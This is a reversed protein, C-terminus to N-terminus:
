LWITLLWSLIKFAALSMKGFLFHLHPLLATLSMKASPLITTTLPKPLPFSSNNLSYLKLWALHFCELLRKYLVTRITFLVTHPHTRTCAWMCTHAWDSLCPQIKAVGVEAPPSKVVSSGPFGLYYQVICKFLGLTSKM